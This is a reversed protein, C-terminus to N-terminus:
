LVFRSTTCYLFKIHITLTKVLPFCTEWALAECAVKRENVWTFLYNTTPKSTLATKAVYAFSKIANPM